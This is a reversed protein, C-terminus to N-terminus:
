NKCSQLNMTHYNQKLSIENYKIVFALWLKIYTEAKEIVVM